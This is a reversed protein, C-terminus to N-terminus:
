KTTLTFVGDWDEPLTEGALSQCRSVYTQSPGDDPNDILISKFIEEAEKFAKKRYLKLGEAFSARKKEEQASIAGKKAMLEYISIPKTRGKVRIADLERVEVFSKAQEYTTQSIIINTGFQKNVGELRSATNVTDGIATYDSRSSSGIHGIVMTGTHLGIRTIFVPLDKSQVQYFKKLYAQMELAAFCARKAHDATTVPAGFLAMIADGIYKDIMAGQNQLIDSGLSLYENLYSVLEKPPLNESISTFGKIDSFFVTAEVEKGGLEIEDARDLIEEIVQPSLYRSFVRRLERKQKGETAYSFIASLLLSLGLASIPAVVPMWFNFVIFVWYAIAIFGAFLGVIFVSSLTLKKMNFFLMAVALAMIVILILELWVPYPKIFDNKILNSLITAHIEMGPCPELSSFPTPKYDWLGPATAGVIVIKDKFYSPDIDPEAGGIYKFASVLVSSVTLYPFVGENGSRGYWKILAETQDSLPYQELTKQIDKQDLDSAKKYISFAFQPLASKKFPYMLPVRRAVGDEDAEFNVVGIESASKQFMRLPATARNYVQKYDYANQQKFLHQKLLRSGKHDGSDKIALHATLIVNGAEKMAEAFQMDSEFGSSEIRDLGKSSFDLDYAIAKAGAESLFNVLIGYFERPWPWPVGQEEFFALSNQDIALLVISNHPLSTKEATIQRVDLTKLELSHLMGIVALIGVLLASVLTVSFSRTQPSKDAISFLRSILMTKKGLM